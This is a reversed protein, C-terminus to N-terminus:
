LLTKSDEIIVKKVIALAEKVNAEMRKGAESQLEPFQLSTFQVFFAKVKEQDPAKLLAKAAAEKEEQEAIKALRENEEALQKAELEKRIRDAEEKAANLESERVQEQEIWTNVNGISVLLDSEKMLFLEHYKVVYNGKSYTYYEPEIYSDNNGLEFGNSLLLKVLLEANAKEKAIRNQEAKIREEEQKKLEALEADREAQRVKEAEIEALRAEEAKCEAEIRDKEDQERKAQVAEFSEKERALLAQFKEEDMIDLPLFETDTEFPALLAIRNSKLEDRKQAEIREQHKEIKEAVAETMESSLVVTNKYSDILRGKTLSELKLEKHLTEVGKTGRNEVLDLRYRRAMAATEPTINEPDLEAIKLSIENVTKMFPAFRLGIAQAETIIVGSSKAVELLEPQLVEVVAIETTQNEKTKAM